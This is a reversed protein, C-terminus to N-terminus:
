STKLNFRETLKTLNEEDSIKYRHALLKKADEGAPIRLTFSKDNATEFIIDAIHEPSSVEDPTRYAAFVNDLLTDYANVDEKRAIVLSSTSFNTKVGGPEVIKVRIGFPALELALGESLGELGFKTAHYTSFFPLVTRGGVSTVNIIVGDGRERLVPLAEQIVWIPGTLNTGIQRDLQEESICELPGMLGYGANNVVADLGGFKDVTAAVASKIDDRKTVDVPLVLINDNSMQSLQKGNECDPKRMTAAVNWGQSLFCKAAAFGIGSSCGTILVTKTM